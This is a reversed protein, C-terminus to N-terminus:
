EYGYSRIINRAEDSKLWSIFSQAAERDGSKLVCMDQIVPGAEEVIWYTGETGKAALAQSLAVFSADTSDSYAYLFSQAVNKGYAIRDEAEKMLGAKELAEIARKGYPATKPNAMGVKELKRSKIVAQWSDSTELAKDKSWLVLKGKAYTTPELAAEEKFLLAPRRQDAAFFVDYPAGNIIQGYLMGTSGFACTVDEGTKQEYLKVLDKMAGTFNAACAISLEGAFANACLMLTTCFCIASTVIQKKM